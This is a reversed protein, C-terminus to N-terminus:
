SAGRRRALERTYLQDIDGVLRTHAYRERARERGARGFQERAATSTGLRVLADALAADNRAPVLYGTRGEDVVDPVGGVSTAVVPKAAAMAEIAAVPTGENVSSLVFVDISAYFRPLDSVWRAFHVRTGIGLERTLAEVIDRETGDGAVVLRLRPATRLATAFARLLTPVDKVPVLRGVFGVVVDDPTAGYEDRLHPSATHVAFLADLDLGLPVVVTKSAPAVAFRRVIDDQQRPSITVVVDTIRALWRETLRVLRNVSESFYGEFVHGHFTHVVLARRRRSRTLNYALAAVRGLTGAKATHTHVVDPQERFLTRLLSVLTRLDSLPSVSRGLFPEKSLRIGSNVAPAELSAEGADLAGYVLLTDHGRADLGANLLAVHRAPGGVNLRAIVRVIKM